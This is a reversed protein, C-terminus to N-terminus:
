ADVITLQWLENVQDGGVEGGFVLMSSSEPVWVADHGFRGAPGDGEAQEQVWFEDQIRFTWTESTAGNVTNGGFVVIQRREADTVMSYFTRGTPRPERLVTTWDRSGSLTWFDDLFPEDDTQGSFIVLRNRLTDWTARMLCRKVPREDVPSVDSWRDTALDFAWTDDFRGNATFGHTILFQGPLFPASTDGSEPASITGGAGYRAEPLSGAPALEAWRDDAPTYQWIDNFFASGQQGGFVLMRDNIYDWGANHGHRAAPGDGALATWTASAIDYMWLDALEGNDGRGAFLYLQGSERLVLSHDKRPPPPDGSPSLAQWTLRLEESGYQPFLTPNPTLAHDDPTDPGGEGDDCSLLYAGALGAGGLLTSRLLSRRSIPRSTLNM